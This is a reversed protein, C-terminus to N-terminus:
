IRKSRALEQQVLLYDYDAISKIHCESDAQIRVIVTETQIANSSEFGPSLSVWKM